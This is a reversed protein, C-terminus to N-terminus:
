TERLSLTLNPVAASDDVSVIFISSGFYGDRHARTPVGSFGIAV